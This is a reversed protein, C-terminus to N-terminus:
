IHIILDNGRKRKERLIKGYIGGPEREFEPVRKKWITVYPYISAYIDMYIGLYLISM